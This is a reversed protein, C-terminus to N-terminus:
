PHYGPARAGNGATTTPLTITFVGGDVTSVLLKTANIPEIDVVTAYTFGGAISDQVTSSYAHTEYGPNPTLDILQMGLIYPVLMYQRSEITVRASPVMFPSTYNLSFDAQEIFTLDGGATAQKFLLTTNSDNAIKVIALGAGATTAPQFAQIRLFDKNGTYGNLEIKTPTTTAGNYWYYSYVNNSEGSVFTVLAKDGFGFLTGAGGQVGSLSASDLGLKSVSYGDAKNGTLAIGNNMAVVNLTLTPYETATSNALTFETYSAAGKQYVFQTANTASGIPSSFGNPLLSISVIKKADSNSGGYRYVGDQTRVYAYAGYFGLISQNTTDVTKESKSISSFIGDTADLNCATFMALSLLGAFLIWM